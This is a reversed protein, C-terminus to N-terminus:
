CKGGKNSVNIVAIASPQGFEAIDLVSRKSGPLQSLPTSLFSFSSDFGRLQASVCGASVVGTTANFFSASVQGSTNNVVYLLTGDPSLLVNNSNFGSPLSYLVTSTLQGSSIYSV